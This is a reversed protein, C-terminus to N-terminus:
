SDEKNVFKYGPVKIARPANNNDTEILGDRLMNQLKHWVTNKSAYGTMECIDQM